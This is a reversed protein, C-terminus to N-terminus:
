RKLDCTVDGPKIRLKPLGLGRYAIDDRLIEVSGGALTHGLSLLYLRGVMDRLPQWETTPDKQGFPGLLEWAFGLFRQGMEDAFTKAATVGAGFGIGHQMKWGLDYHLLRCAEIEVAYRALKNRIISDDALLRGDRRTNKAYEILEELMRRAWPAKVFRGWFRDGDLGQILMQFGRNEVGLLYRKHIRVNDLHIVNHLHTNAMTTLGSVEVGPLSKDLVFMSLGRYTEVSPDTKVLLFCYKAVHAYASWLKQGNIIYYDGESVARSELVTLDSGGQPESFGLWATFTGDAMKPLIEEQLEPNGHEMIAYSMYSAHFNAALPARQYAMEETYAMREMLSREQGGYKKPWWRTLWGKRGLLQTFEDSWGGFGYGEDEMQLKFNEPPNEQLFERVEARMEEEKKTFSFDM